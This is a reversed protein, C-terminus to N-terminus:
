LITLYKQFRMLIRPWYCRKWIDFWFHNKKYYIRCWEFKIKIEISYNHSLLIMMCKVQKLKKTAAKKYRLKVTALRNWSEKKYISRHLRNLYNGIKFFPNGHGKFSKHVILKFHWPDFVTFVFFGKHFNCM